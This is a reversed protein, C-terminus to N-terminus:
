SSVELLFMEWETPYFNEPNWRDTVKNMLSSFTAWTISQESIGEDDSDPEREPDDDDSYEFELKNQNSELKMNCKGCM